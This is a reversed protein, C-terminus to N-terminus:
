VDISEDWRARSVLPILKNTWIEYENKLKKASFRINDFSWRTM